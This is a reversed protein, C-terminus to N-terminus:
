NASLPPTLGGACTTQFAGPTTPLKLSIAVGTVYANGLSDVAIGFGQDGFIGGLTPLSWKPAAIEDQEGICASFQSHPM